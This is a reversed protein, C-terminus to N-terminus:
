SGFRDFPKIKVLKEFLTLLHTKKARGGESKMFILFFMPVTVQVMELLKQKM